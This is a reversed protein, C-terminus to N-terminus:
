LSPPNIWTSIQPWGGKGVLEFCNERLKPLKSNKATKLKQPWKSPRFLTKQNTKMGSSKAAVGEKRRFKKRYVVIGVILAVAIILIGGLTIGLVVRKKNKNSNPLICDGKHV